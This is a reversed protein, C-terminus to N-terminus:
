FGDKLSAELAKLLSPASERVFAVQVKTLDEGHVEYNYRSVVEQVGTLIEKSVIELRRLEYLM